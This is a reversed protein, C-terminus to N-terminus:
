DLRVLEFHCRNSIWKIDLTDIYSLVVNWVIITTNWSIKGVFTRVIFILKYLIM